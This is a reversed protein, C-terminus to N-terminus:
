LGVKYELLMKIIINGADAVLGDLGELPTLVLNSNLPM